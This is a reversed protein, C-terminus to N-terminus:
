HNQNTTKFPNNRNIIESLNESQIKIREATQNIFKEVKYIRKVASRNYKAFNNFQKFNSRYLCPAIILHVWSSFLYLSCLKPKFDNPVLQFTIGFLLSTISITTVYNVSALTLQADRLKYQYDSLKWLYVGDCVHEHLKSVLETRDVNYVDEALYKFFDDFLHPFDLANKIIKLPTSESFESQFENKFLQLSLQPFHPLDIRISGDNEDGIYLKYDELNDNVIAQKTLDNTFFELDLMTYFHKPEFDFNTNRLHLEMKFYKWLKKIDAKMADSADKYSANRGLISKFLNEYEADFLHSFDRCTIMFKVQEDIPLYSLIHERIFLADHFKVFQNPCQVKDNEKASEIPESPETSETQEIPESLQVEEGEQASEILQVEQGAQASEVIQIEQAPEGTELPQELVATFVVPLLFFVLCIVDLKM